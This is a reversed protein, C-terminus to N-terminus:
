PEPQPRQPVRERGRFRVRIADGLKADQAMRERITCPRPWQNSANCRLSLQILMTRTEAISRKSPGHRFQGITKRSLETGFSGTKLFMTQGEKRSVRQLGVTLTFNAMDVIRIMRHM